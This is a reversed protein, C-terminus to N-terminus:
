LASDEEAPTPKQVKRVLKGKTTPKKSDRARKERRKNAKM